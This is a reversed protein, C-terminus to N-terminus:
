SKKLRKGLLGLGVLAGGMLAMTAPEPTGSPIIYDYNVTAQLTVTETYQNNGNGGLGGSDQGTFTSFYLTFPDADPPTSTATGFLDGTTDTASKSYTTNGTAGVALGAVSLTAKPDPGNGGFIDNAADGAVGDPQHDGSLPSGISVAGLTDVGFFAGTGFPTTTGNTVSITGNITETVSITYFDLVANLPIGNVGPDFTPLTLTADIADTTQPGVTSTFTAISDASALGCATVALATTTLIRRLTTMTRIGRRKQVVLLM